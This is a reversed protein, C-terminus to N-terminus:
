HNHQYLTWTENQYELSTLNEVWDGSNLYEIRKGEKEILKMVPHHLHGCIISDYGNEIALSIIDEEFKNNKNLFRKSTNKLYRSLFVEKKGLKRALFNIVKNMLIISGYGNAGMKNLLRIKALKGDFADGHFVFIKQNGIELELNNAITIGAAKFGIFKRFIDDHNGAIYYTKTGKQVWELIKQIVQLHSTPFYSKSFQLVDIIDGNLILTQPEISELYNLLDKAKAGYTGLHIDSLIVIEVKRKM